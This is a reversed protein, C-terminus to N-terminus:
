ESNGTAALARCGWALRKAQEAHVRRGGACRELVTNKSVCHDRRRAREDAIFLFVLLHRNPILGPAPVASEPLPVTPM